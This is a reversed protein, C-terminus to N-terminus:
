VSSLTGLAAMNVLLKEAALGRINLWILLSLLAFSGIEIAVGSNGSGRGLRRVHISRTGGLLSVLTPVYVINSM